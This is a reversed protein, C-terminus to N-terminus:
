DNSYKITSLKNLILISKHKDGSLTQIQKYILDIEESDFTFSNNIQFVLLQNILM